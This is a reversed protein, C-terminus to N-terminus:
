SMIGKFILIEENRKRYGTYRKVCKDVMDNLNEKM